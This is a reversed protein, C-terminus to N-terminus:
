EFQAVPGGHLRENRPHRLAHEGHNAHERSSIFVHQVIVTPPLGDPHEPSYNLETSEHLLTIKPTYFSLM